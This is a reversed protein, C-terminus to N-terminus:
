PIRNTNDRIEILLNKMQELLVQNDKLVKWLNAIDLNGFDKGDNAPYVQM